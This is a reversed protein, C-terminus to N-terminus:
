ETSKVGGRVPWIRCPSTKQKTSTFGSTMYISWATSNPNLVNTTSSWYYDNKVTSQNLSDVFINKHEPPLPPYSQGYDILSQLEKINPLRWDSYCNTTCNLGYANPNKNIEDISSFATTWDVTVNPQGNLIGMNANKTWMLGTMQDTVTGDGNDKFRLGSGTWSAGITEAYSADDKGEVGWSSHSLPDLCDKTQGTKAVPSDYIGGTGSLRGWGGDARLGWYYKGPRVDDPTAGFLEDKKPAISMIEDLSHGTSTPAATPEKFGSTRKVGETGNELRQYIDDLTFMASGPDDPAAPADLSGALSYVPLIFFLFLYITAIWQIM